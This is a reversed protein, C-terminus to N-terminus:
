KALIDITDLFNQLGSKVHNILWLVKKMYPVFWIKKHKLQMKVKRSSIFCLMSFINHLKEM